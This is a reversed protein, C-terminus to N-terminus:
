PLYLTKKLPGLRGPRSALESYNIPPSSPSVSYAPVVLSALGLERQYASTAQKREQLQTTAIVPQCSGHDYSDWSSDFDKISDRGHVKGLICGM